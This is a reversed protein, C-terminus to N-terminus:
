CQSAHQAALALAFDQVRQLGIWLTKSGPFGDHKRNLFGGFGAVIRVMEALSPPTKPPPAQKAVTYAAQWEETEFVVDGPLDPCERGLTTLLLVRWAIILYIALAPELRDFHELQLEEVQCGSKLIKFFLEISWRALYWSMIECAQEFTKVVGTTLLLWEIAEVGQPPAEERALVATLHVAPARKGKGQPAKLVVPVARLTQTVERAARTPTAPMTFTIEGLVPAAAAKEWLKQGDILCRKQNARILLEARVPGCKEAEAFLEDIDSERDAVYVLRTEPLEAQAECVRQYGELWRISEKEEIPRQGRDTGFDEPDRAWNWADFVGLPVREPTVMLTPHIHLGHQNAYTVPGLGKIGPKGTYDLSSSDQIALVVPHARARELTCASHPALVEQATVREHAFFRYAAPTEAWGTCAAPISGTPKAGLTALLSAARRNLRQDGLNVRAMERAAWNPQEIAACGKWVAETVVRDEKV